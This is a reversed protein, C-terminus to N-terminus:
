VSGSGSGASRGSGSGLSLTDLGCCCRIVRQWEGLVLVQGGRPELEFFFYYLLGGLVKSTAFKPEGVVHVDGGRELALQWVVRCRWVRREVLGVWVEREPASDVRAEPMVLM